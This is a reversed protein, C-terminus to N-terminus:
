GEAEPMAEALQRALAAQESRRRLLRQRRLLSGALAEDGAERAAEAGRGLAERARQRDAAERRAAARTVEADLAELDREAVARAMAQEDQMAEAAAEQARPDGRGQARRASEVQERVQDLRDLAEREELGAGLMRRLERADAAAAELAARTEADPASEPLREVRRLAESDPVLVEDTGPPNAALAPPPLLFASAGLLLALPWGWLERAQLVRPRVDSPSAAELAARARAFTAADLASRPEGLAHATLLAQDAGLRIDVFTVLDLSCPMRRWALLVGLLPGLPLLALASWRPWAPELWALLLALVGVLLATVSGVRLGSRALLARRVVRLLSELKPM